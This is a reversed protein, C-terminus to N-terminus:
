NNLSTEYSALNSLLAKRGYSDTLSLCYEKNGVIYLASRARSVAVNLLYPSYENIFRPLSAKCNDTVVLSLIVIDKEDGQFRHIVDCLINHEFPLDDVAKKLEDKQHRFPTAIGISANPYELSLKHALAVCEKVEDMNLNRAEHMQGKVNIWNMGPDGFKFDDAKTKIDLEHGAKRMYFYENNFGIIDPHCRYHEDLFASDLSSLNSITKAKEFISDDIYNHKNKPINLKELVFQQEHNKISTIHPLQLSDGIVVVRKARYILPLVSTIDCQSAEDIVLLDFTGTEQLFGKKINLSTISISNFVDLFAAIDNSVENQIERQWPIGNQIYGKYREIAGINANRMRENLTLELIELGLDPQQTVIEDKRRQFKEENEIIMKLKEEKQIVKTEIEEVEELLLNSKNLIETQIEIQNSIFNLHEEFGKSIERSQTIVPACNDIHKQLALPFSKNMEKLSKIFSSKKFWNFILKGIMGEKSKSLTRSLENLESNTVSYELKSVIYLDYEEKNLSEIWTTYDLKKSQLDEKLIPIAKKLIEISRLLDKLKIKETMLVEFAEKKEKLDSSKDDYRGGNIREVSENLINILEKNHANTGFRLFYNTKLLDNIRQHVNDVAKNNKSSFLVKENRVVANALINAVVQSKGTGPPGTIITLPQKFSLAIGKKQSNNLSTIQILSQSNDSTQKYSLAKNTLMAEFVPNELVPLKGKIWQNLESQLQANFMSEQSLGLSISNVLKLSTDLYSQAAKIKDNLIKNENIKTTLEEIIDETLNLEELIPRYIDFSDFNLKINRNDEIDSQQIITYFFPVNMEEFLLNVSIFLNKPFRDSKNQLWLELFETNPEINLIYDSTELNSWDIPHHNVSLVSAQSIREISLMTNYFGLARLIETNNEIEPILRIIQEMKAADVPATTAVEDNNIEKRYISTETVNLVNLINQLESNSFNLSKSNLDELEKVINNFHTVHFYRQIKAPISNQDFKVESQFLVLGNTHAWSVDQHNPELVEQKKESLFQFLAFRYTNVQQYPNRCHAGGAVFITKGEETKLKWPGNESFTLEGAYDKFDIVLLAGRKIFIADLSNGGVNINGILIHDDEGEEFSKRLTEDLVRFFKNEHTYEYRDLLYSRYAMINHQKFKAKSKLKNM